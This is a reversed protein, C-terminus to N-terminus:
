GGKSTTSSHPPTVDRARGDPGVLSAGVSVLGPPWWRWSVRGRRYGLETLVDNFGRGGWCPRTQEGFRARLLRLAEQCATRESDFVALVVGAEGLTGAEDLVEVKGDRPHLVLDAYREHPGHFVAVHWHGDM